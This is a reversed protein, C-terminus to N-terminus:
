LRWRSLRLPHHPPPQPGLLTQLSLGGWGWAPTAQPGPTGPASVWQADQDNSPSGLLARSRCRRYAQSYPFCDSVLVVCRSQRGLWPGSVIIFCFLRVFYFLDAKRRPPFIVCVSFFRVGGQFSPSMISKGQFTDGCHGSFLLFIVLWLFPHSHTGWPHRLFGDLSLSTSHSPM